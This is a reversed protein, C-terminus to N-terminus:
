GVWLLLLLLDVLRESWGWRRKGGFEAGEVGGAAEINEGVAEAEPELVGRENGGENLVSEGRGGDFLGGADGADLLVAEDDAGLYAVGEGLGVVVRFDQGKELGSSGFQKVFNAEEAGGLAGGRRAKQHLIPEVGIAGPVEGLGYLIERSSSPIFAPLPKVVSEWSITEGEHVISLTSFM